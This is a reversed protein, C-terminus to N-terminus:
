PERGGETVLWHVATEVQVDRDPDSGADTAGPMPTWLLLDPQVGRAQWSHGTPTQLRVSDIRLVLPGGVKLLTETRASGMTPEGILYARGHEQLGAALAEAAGLTWANVLLALPADTVPDRTAVLDREGVGPEVLHMLVTSRPLFLEASGAAGLIDGGPTDRLDLVFRDAGMALLSRLAEELEGPTKRHFQYVRVYGVGDPRLEEDVSPVDFSERRLEVQFRSARSGGGRVFDLRLRSGEDGHLLGLVSDLRAGLLGKGDIAVVRDGVRLGARQAPSGALVRSVELLGQSGSLHFEIGIGTMRGLLGRSLREAAETELLMASPPMSARMPSSGERLRKNVVDIMGQMAGLYLDTESIADSGVRDLLMKHLARLLTAAQEDDLPCSLLTDVDAATPPLDGRPPEEARAAAVDMGPAAVMLAALAMM